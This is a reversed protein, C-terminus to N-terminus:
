RECEGRRASGVNVAVVKVVEPVCACGLFATQCSGLETEDGHLVKPVMAKSLHACCDTGSVRASKM